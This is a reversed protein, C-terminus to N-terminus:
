RHKFSTWGGDLEIPGLIRVSFLFVHIACHSGANRGPHSWKPLAMRPLLDLPRKGRAPARARATLQM